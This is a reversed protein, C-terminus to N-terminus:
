RENCRYLTHSHNIYFFQGLKHHARCFIDAGAHGLNGEKMKKECFEKAKIRGETNYKDFCCPICYGDPHKGIQFNPYLKYIVKFEKLSLM